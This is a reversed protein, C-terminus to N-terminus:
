TSAERPGGFPVATGLGEKRAQHYVHHVAAADEVGLGLSKFLTIESETTRGLCRGLLLEGVEGQIHSDDVLGESKPILFDGSENLTSERRDVFFRSRAMTQSDVERAKPTSSGVANIHAGPAIWDAEFIPQRAFSVTCILDADRVAQRASQAAEVPFSYREDERKAFSQRHQANPSWVRVRRLPRVLSLAELHTRAQVGSGLLALDGADPRALLRTALASVAATRIATIEAAEAVALLQGRQDDFLLVAGQHSDFETGHNGPFVTVVKIATAPPEQTCAPMMGLIGKQGPLRMLSRLPQVAGGEALTRLATEMVEICAAMPLLRRVEDRDIVLIDM